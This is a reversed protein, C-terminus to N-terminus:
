ATLTDFTIAYDLTDTSGVPVFTFRIAYEGTYGAEAVAAAAAAQVESRSFSIATIGDTERDLETFSIGSLMLEDNEGEAVDKLIVTVYRMADVNDRNWYGVVYNTGEGYEETLDEMVIQGSAGNVNELGCDLCVYIQHEEDWNWNHCTPDIPMDMGPSEPQGCVKCIYRESGFQTCTPAQYLNGYIHADETWTNFYGDSNTENVTRSCGQSFDYTYEQQWWFGPTGDANTHETRHKTVYRYGSYELSYEKVEHYQLNEGNDLANDATCEFKYLGNLYYNKETWSSGCQPCVHSEIQVESGDELTETSSTLTYPHYTQTQGTAITIERLCTDTLPDYGLQWTQYETAVCNEELWYESMRIRLGCQPDTVSCTLMFSNSYIGTGGESTCQWDYLSGSIWNETSARDISESDEGLDYKEKQGCPCIYHVLKHECVAGYEALDISGAKDLNYCHQGAITGNLESHGCRTCTQIVEVGDECSEAGEALRYTQVNQHQVVRFSKQLDLLVEGDRVLKERFTRNVQCADPIQEDFIGEYRYTNCVECYYATLGPEINEQDIGVWSCGDGNDYYYWDENEGCPCRYHLIEGGCLGYETLAYSDMPFPDHSNMLSDDREVKGCLSCTFIQYFGDTCSDGLMEFTTTNKHAEYYSRCTGQCLLQGDMSYAYTEEWVGDCSDPYEIVNTSVTKKLGCQTCSREDGSVWEWQHSGEDLFTDYVKGCPCSNGRKIIPGCLGEGSYLVEYVTSFVSHEESSEHYSDLQEGCRACSATVTYGDACTEGDLQFSYIYIHYKMETSTEYSLLVNGDRAITVTENHIGDCTGDDAEIDETLTTKIAGCVSCTEQYGGSIDEWNTFDCRGNRWEEYQNSEAGCACRETVLYLDGCLQGESLLERAVPHTTHLEGAEEWRYEEGCVQCTSIVTCGDECSDGHLIFTCIDSHNYVTRRNTAELLQTDDKTYTYTVTEYSSCADIPERNSYTITRTVGCVSCRDVQQNEDASVFDYQCLEDTSYIGREEGCLCSYTVLRGGCIGYESLDWETFVAEHETTTYREIHGCDRCTETVLVGDTCSEGQLQYENDYNHRQEINCREGSIVPVGDRDTYTLTTTVLQECNEDKEGFTEERAETLGCVSCQRHTADTYVWQCVQGGDYNLSFGKQEGCACVTQVASTACFGDLPTEVSHIHAHYYVYQEITEGCVTCVGKTYLGDECSDGSLVAESTKYQHNEFFQHTTFRYVESGGIEYTIVENYETTCNATDEVFSHEFTKVANCVACKSVLKQGESQTVDFVWQCDGLIVETGTYAGCHCKRERVTEGCLGYESLDVTRVDENVLHSIHDAVANHCSIITEGDLSLETDSVYNSTCTEEELQYYGRIVFTLGCKTCTSSNTYVTEGTPLTEESDTEQFTCASHDIYLQEKQGCDCTERYVVAGSCVNYESLDVATRHLKVHTCTNEEFGCDQCVGDVFTHEGTAALVIDKSYGCVTCAQTAAGAASCTAPTTVTLEGWVHSAAGIREGCLECEHYHQNANSLWQESPQHSVQELTQMQQDTYVTTNVSATATYEITGGSQCTASTVKSTVVAQLTRTHGADNACVLNVTAASRDEAWDWSDVRYDHGLPSVTSSIEVHGCIECTRTTQGPTTCTAEVVTAEGFSHGLPNVTEEKSQDCRSCTYANTGANQCDAETSHEEDKVWSHGLAPIVASRKEGCVSCEEETHGDGACTADEHSTVAFSHGLKSTTENITVAGCRTCSEKDYGAQTCTAAQTNRSLVHGYTECRQAPTLRTVTYYSFHTTQFTVYGNSYTGKICEVTGDDDIYWVDICDVDDGEQLTYPLSVTATGGLESVTEGNSTLSVNYVPNDGIQEKEAATISLETASKTEYEITVDTGLGEVVAEDLSISVDGLQVEAVTQLEDKTVTATTDQVAVATKTASCSTCTFTTIGNETVGDNWSHADNAPVAETYSHSCGENTCTYTKEGAATCTAERTLTATYTHRYYVEGLKQEGCACEFVEQYGCGPLAVTEKWTYSHPALETGTVRRTEGCTECRFAQVAGQRCTATTSSDPDEAWSHGLPAEQYDCASCVRGTECTLEGTLTHGAAPITVTNVDTYTQGDYSVSASYTVEGATVCTNATRGTETVTLGDATTLVHTQGCGCRLEVQASMDENWTWRPAFYRHVPESQLPHGHAFPGGLSYYLIYLADAQDVEGSGNFDCDQGPETGGPILAYYLLAIADRLNVKGDSNVDGQVYCEPEAEEAPAAALTSQVLFPMLLCVAFLMAGLRLLSKRKKHELDLM